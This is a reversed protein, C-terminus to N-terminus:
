TMAALVILMGIVDVFGIIISAIGLGKGKYREPYRGIRGLSIFGFIIAMIGLPIGFVFLGALSGIFGGFAMGETQKPVSGGRSSAPNRESTFYDRTGNPYKIMFVDTINVVFVPGQIDGCKRYRIEHQGIEVVKAEMIDGNRLVISDCDQLGSELPRKSEPLNRAAVPGPAQVKLPPILMGTTQVRGPLMGASFLGADIRGKKTLGSAPAPYRNVMINEGVSVKSSGKFWEPRAWAPAYRYGAPQDPYTSKLLAHRSKMNRSHSFDPCSVASRKTTSCSFQVMSFAFLIGAVVQLKFKIKM